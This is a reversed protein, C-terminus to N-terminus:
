GGIMAALAGAVYSERRSRGSEASFRAVEPCRVRPSRTLAPWLCLEHLGDAFLGYDFVSVEGIM